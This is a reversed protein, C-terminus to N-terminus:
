DGREGTDDDGCRRRMRLVVAIDADVAVCDESDYPTNRTLPRNNIGM